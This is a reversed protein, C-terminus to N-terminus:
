DWDDFEIEVKYRRNRAKVDLEIWDNPGGQGRTLEAKMGDKTDASRISKFGQQKLYDRYFGFVTAVDDPTQFYAEYEDDDTSARIETANPYAPVNLGRWSQSQPASQAHSTRWAILGAVGSLTLAALSRRRMGISNDIAEITKRRRENMIKSM